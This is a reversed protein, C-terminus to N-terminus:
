FVNSSYKNSLVISKSSGSFGSQVQIFKGFFGPGPPPNRIGRLFLFFRLPLCVFGDVTGDVCLSGAVFGDVCFPGAVTGPAVGGGCCGAGLGFSSSSGCCYGGPNGAGEKM